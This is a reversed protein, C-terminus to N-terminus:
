KKLLDALQKLDEKTTTKEPTDNSTMEFHPMAEKSIMFPKEQFYPHQLAEEATIRQKPDWALLKLLLDMGQESLYVPSAIAIAPLVTRLNSRVNKVKNLENNWCTNKFGDYEPPPYGIQKIIKILAEMEGNGQKLSVFPTRTLLEYFICGVSWMDLKDDYLVKSERPNVLLEPARYGLSVVQQTYLELPDSYIRALGFDCISLQGNNYLLNSLKLDRHIIWKSHMYEVGQLLQYLLCKVESQSFPVQMKTFMVKVMDLPLYEMVMYTTMPPHPDIVMEKVPIINPHHLSLLLNVERLATIPFGSASTTSPNIKIKKLAVIEQTINNKAKYVVGYTGEGLRQIKSYVSINRCGDPNIPEIIKPSEIIPSVIKEEEEEKEEEQTNIDMKNISITNSPDQPTLSVSPSVSKPSVRKQFSIEEQDEEEDDSMWRPTKKKGDELPTCPSVSNNNNNNNNTCINPSVSNTVDEDSSWVHSKTLSKENVEKQNQKETEQKEKLSLAKKKLNELVSNKKVPPLKSKSEEKYSQHDERHPRSSRSSRSDRRDDVDYSHLGYRDSPSRSRGRDGYYRGKEEYKNLKSISKDKSNDFDFDYIRENMRDRNRHSSRYPKQDEYSPSHSLSRNRSSM